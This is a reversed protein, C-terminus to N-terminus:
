KIGFRGLYFAMSVGGLLVVFAISVVPYAIIFAVALLAVFWAIATIVLAGVNVVIWDRSVDNSYEDFVVAMFYHFPAILVSKTTKVTDDFYDSWQVYSLSEKKSLWVGYQYTGVVFWVLLLFALLIMFIM